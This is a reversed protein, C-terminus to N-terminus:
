RSLSIVNILKIRGWKKGGFFREHVQSIKDGIQFNTNKLNILEHV